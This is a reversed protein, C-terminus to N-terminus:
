SRTNSKCFSAMRDDHGVIIVTGSDPNDTMSGSVKHTSTMPKIGAPVGDRIGKAPAKTVTVDYGCLILYTAAIAALQNKEPLKQLEVNIIETDAATEATHGFQQLVALDTSQYNGPLNEQLYALLTQDNVNM